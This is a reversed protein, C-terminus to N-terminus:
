DANGGPHTELAHKDVKCKALKSFMSVHTLDILEVRCPGPLTPLTPLNNLLLSFIPLTCSSYLTPLTCSSYLTPLTYFLQSLPVVPCLTPRQLTSLTDSSHSSSCFLLFLVPLTALTDPSHFCYLFLLVLIPLTYSYLFFLVLIGIYTSSGMSICFGCGRM